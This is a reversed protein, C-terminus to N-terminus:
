LDTEIIENEYVHWKQNKIVMKDIQKDTRLLVMRVKQKKIWQSLPETINVAYKDLLYGARQIIPLKENKAVILLKNPDIKKALDILITAVNNLYGAHEPYQVLDFATSESTSVNMYGTQTKIKMTKSKQINKKVYFNIKARGITISRLSKSTMVQFVQPQQHSAGHLATASLLAVYYPQNHHQMLADIYWSPPPAGLTQYELPIILYFAYRLKIIRKKNILRNAAIRIAVDSCSLREKATKQAFTYEGQSQLYDVYKSLFRFILKSQNSNNLKM